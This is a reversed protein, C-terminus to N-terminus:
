IRFELTTKQPQLGLSQYFRMAGPNCAWVNLTINYFSNEKAWERVNRYLDSGIHKGRMAADVCLDDIYLTKVPQLHHDHSHDIIRCFCYGVTRDEEDTSVFVPTTPDSIIEAVEERTYKRVDKIFLDPRGEAHVNNVQLLLRMIAEMDKAQAKRFM